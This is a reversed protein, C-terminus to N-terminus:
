FFFFNLLFSHLVFSFYNVSIIKRDVGAPEKTNRENQTMWNAAQMYNSHYFLLANNLCLLCNRCQSVDTYFRDNQIVKAISSLAYHTFFAFKKYQNM